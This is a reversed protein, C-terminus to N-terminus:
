EGPQVKPSYSIRARLADLGSGFRLGMREIATTGSRPIENRIIVIVAGAIGLCPLLYILPVMAPNLAIVNHLALGGGRFLAAVVFASAIMQTRKQRTSRAQGVFAIVILSFLFPYLPSSLREHLEAQLKPFKVGAKKSTEDLSLLESFYRERPRWVNVGSMRREFRELDITYSQFVLVSRPSVDPAGRLMHGQEMQLHADGDIRIVRAREALYTVHEKARQDSLLLGNLTGDLGRSRIHVIVGREPSSFRGPQLVQTILDSRVEIIKARLQRLSWPMGVHNIFAVILSVVFALVMIPRVVTWISGGSATVIILESDGNLRNLVHITAILLAIPAVVALLHPIALTTMTLLTVVDQGKSTVLKLQKLALAIWVVGCLSLLILTLASAAQRVLYVSFTSM